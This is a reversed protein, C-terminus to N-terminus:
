DIKAGAAHPLSSENILLRYFPNIRWRRGYLRRGIVRSGLVLQQEFYQKKQYNIIRPKIKGAFLHLRLVRHYLPRFLKSFARYALRRSRVYSEYIRGWLGGHIIRRWKGRRAYTVKGTVEKNLLWPDLKSNNDGRTRVGEETKLVVRHTINKDDTPHRFTIVDGVQIKKEDNYPEVELIDPAKLTPNMSPGIYVYINDKKLLNPLSYQNIEEKM